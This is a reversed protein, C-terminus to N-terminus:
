WGSVGVYHRWASANKFVPRDNTSNYAFRGKAGTPASTLLPYQLEGTDYFNLEKSGAGITMRNATTGIAGNDGQGIVITHSGTKLTLAAIGNGVTYYHLEAFELSSYKWGIRRYNTVYHDYMYIGSDKFYIEDDTGLGGVNIKGQIDLFEGNWKLWHASSGISLKTVM